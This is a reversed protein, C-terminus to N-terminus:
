YDVLTDAGAGTAEAMAAILRWDRAGDIHVRQIWAHDLDVAEGANGAFHVGEREEESMGELTEEDILLAAALDADVLADIADGEHSCWVAGLAGHENGVVYLSANGHHGPYICPTADACDMRIREGELEIERAPMCDFAGRNVPSLHLTHKTNM